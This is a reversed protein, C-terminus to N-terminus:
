NTVVGVKCDGFAAESMRGNNAANVGVKFAAGVKGRGLENLEGILALVGVLGAIAESPVGVEVTGGVFTTEPEAKDATWSGITFAVLLLL